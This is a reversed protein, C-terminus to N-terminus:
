VIREYNEKEELVDISSYQFMLVDSRTDDLNEVFVRDLEWNIDFIDEIPSDIYITYCVCNDVINIEIDSYYLHKTELVSFALQCLHQAEDDDLQADEFISIAKQIIKYNHFQTPNELKNLFPLSSKIGQEIAQTIFGSNGLGVMYNHHIKYDNPALKLAAEYCRNINDKKRELCSIRGLFEWYNVYDIKKFNDAEKKLLRIDFEGLKRRKSLFYYIKDALEQTKPSPQATM